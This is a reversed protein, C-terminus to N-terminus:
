MPGSGNRGGPLSSAAQVAASVGSHHSRSEVIAASAGGLEQERVARSQRSSELRAPGNELPEAVKEARVQGPEQEEAQSTLRDCPCLGCSREAPM